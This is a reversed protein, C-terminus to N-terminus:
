ANESLGAALRVRLSELTIGNVAAEMDEACLIRGINDHRQCLEDIAQLASFHMAVINPDSCLQEGITELATAIAALERAIMVRLQLNTDGSRRISQGIAPAQADIVDISSM